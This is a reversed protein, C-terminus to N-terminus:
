SSALENIAKTITSPDVNMHTSIENTRVNDSREFLYKLYEIKRPSLELGTIDDM